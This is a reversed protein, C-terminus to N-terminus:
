PATGGSPLVPKADRHGASPTRQLRARLPGDLTIQPHRFVAWAARPQRSISPCPPPVLELRPLAQFTALAASVIM